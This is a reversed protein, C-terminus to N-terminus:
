SKVGFWFGASYAHGPDTVYNQALYMIDAFEEYPLDPLKVLHGEILGFFLNVILVIIIKPLHKRNLWEFDFFLFNLDDVKWSLM